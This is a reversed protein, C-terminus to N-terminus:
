FQYDKLLSRIKSLTSYGAGDVTSSHKQFICNTGHIFIFLFAYSLSVAKHKMGKKKKRMSSVM